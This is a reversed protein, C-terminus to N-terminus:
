KKGWKEILYLPLNMLGSVVEGFKEMIGARRLCFEITGLITYILLVMLVLSLVLAVYSLITGDLKM